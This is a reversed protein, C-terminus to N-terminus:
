MRPYTSSKAHVREYLPECIHLIYLISYVYTYTYMDLRLVYNYMSMHTCVYIYICSHVDRALAENPQTRMGLTYGEVVRQKFPTM